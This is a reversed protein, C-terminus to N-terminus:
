ILKKKVIIKINKQSSVNIKDIKHKNLRDVNNYHINCGGTGYVVNRNLYQIIEKLM